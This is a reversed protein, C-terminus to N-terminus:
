KDELESKIIKQYQPTHDAVAPKIYPKARQGHTLHTNGKADTYGLANATWRSLVRGHWAGCICCIRCQQGCPEVWNSTEEDLFPILTKEYTRIAELQYKNAESKKLWGQHRNFKPYERGGISYNGKVTILQCSTVVMGRCVFLNGSELMLFYIAQMKEM